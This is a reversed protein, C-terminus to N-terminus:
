VCVFIDVLFVTRVFFELPVALARFDMTGNRDKFLQRNIRFTYRAVLRGGGGREKEREIHRM